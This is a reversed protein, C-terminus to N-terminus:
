SWDGHMRMVTTGTAGVILGALMDWGSSHGIATVDRASDQAPENAALKAVLRQLSAFSQGEALDRFLAAGLAHTRTRAADILCQAAAAWEANMGFLRRAYLIAGVFDDGSPTFGPGLGLLPLAAACGANADDRDLARALAMVQPAVRDLPFAPRRGALVAAIGRAVGLHGIGAALEVCGDRLARAADRDLELPALRWPAIEHMCLRQDRDACPSFVVARPHMAADGAGIWIPEDGALRYASGALGPLATSRGATRVLAAHAKWGISCTAATM